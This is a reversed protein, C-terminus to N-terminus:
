GGVGRGCAGGGNGRRLGKQRGEGVLAGGAVVLAGDGRGEDGVEGVDVKGAVGAEYVVRVGHVPQPRVARPYFDVHRVAAVPVLAGEAVHREVVHAAVAGGVYAAQVLRHQALALLCAHVADMKHVLGHRGREHEPERPFVEGM